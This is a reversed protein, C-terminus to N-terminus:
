WVVIPATVANSTPQGTLRDGRWRAM